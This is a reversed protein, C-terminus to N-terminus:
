GIYGESFQIEYSRSRGLVFHIPKYGKSKLNNRNCVLAALCVGGTKSESLRASPTFRAVLTTALERKATSGFIEM